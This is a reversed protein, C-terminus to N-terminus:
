TALGVRRGRAASPFRSNRPIPSAPAGERSARDSARGRRGGRAVAPAVERNFVSPVIYDAALEEPKVIAAILM